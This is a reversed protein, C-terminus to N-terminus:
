KHDKYKKAVKSKGFQWNATSDLEDVDIGEDYGVYQNTFNRERHQNVPPRKNQFGLHDDESNTNEDDEGEDGWYQDTNYNKLTRFNLYASKSDIFTKLNEEIPWTM